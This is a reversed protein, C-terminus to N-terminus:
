GIGRGGLKEVVTVTADRSGDDVIVVEYDDAVAAGARVASRVTQEIIAEENYAPFFITLGSVHQSPDATLDM